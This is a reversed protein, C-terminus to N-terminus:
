DDPPWAAWCRVTRERFSTRLLCITSNGGPVPGAHQINALVALEQTTVPMPTHPITKLLRLNQNKKFRRSAHHLHFQRWVEPLVPLAVVEPAQVNRPLAVRAQVWHHEALLVRMHAGTAQTAAQSGKLRRVGTNHPAYMNAEGAAHQLVRPLVALVFAPPAARPNTSPRHKAITSDTGEFANPHQEATNHALRM